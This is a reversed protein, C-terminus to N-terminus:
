SNYQNIHISIIADSNKKDLKNVETKLTNFKTNEVVENKVAGSIKKWDKPVTKLKGIDLNNVKTKVDNLSTPVNVLKAIDLKEVEVKLVIFDRKSALDSTDVDIAHLLEKKTAYNSVSLVVKVKDRIHSDREPYYHM